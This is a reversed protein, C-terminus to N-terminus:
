AVSRRGTFGCRSFRQGIELAGETIICDEFDCWEFTAEKPQPLEVERFRCQLYHTPGDQFTGTITAGRIVSPQALVLDDFTPVPPNLYAGLADHLEKAESQRLVLDTRPGSVRAIGV